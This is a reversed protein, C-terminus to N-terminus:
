NVVTDENSTGLVINSGPGPFITDLGANGRITDDDNGGRIVDDGRGGHIKDNGDNGELIDDGAEGYLQDAGDGGIIQDNGGGGYIIDDGLKGYIIDDGNHGLIFDNGQDGYIIDNGARGHITDDGIGAYIRDNGNRGDIIDNGALGCIVDEGSTGTLSDNGATGIITCNSFGVEIRVTTESCRDLGDCIQYSLLDEGITQGRYRIVKLGEPSTAISAIGLLPAATIAFSDIEIDGEIDIDNSLVNFYNDINLEASVKDDVATPISNHLSVTINISSVTQLGSSDTATVTITHNGPTLDSASLSLFHGSGIPGDLNSSWSFSNPSLNGDETDYGRASIVFGQREAVVTGASPSTIQVTPPTGFVSFIGTELFVSRLGDSASVAFRASNSTKLTNAEFRASKETSNYSLVDYKKGGDASYFVTYKLQEDDFDDAIWSLDIFESSTYVAGANSDALALFPTNDSRELTAIIKNSKSFRLKKYEPPDNIVFAFNVRDTINAPDCIGPICAEHTAHAEFPISRIVDDSNSLLELTYNGAVISRSDMVITHVPSLSVTVPEGDTSLEMSGAFIESNHLVNSDEVSNQAFSISNTASSLTNIIRQHHFEDMWWAQHRPPINGTGNPNYYCYSMISFVEEPDSVILDNYIESLTNSNAPFIARGLLLNADLGWVESADAGIPGLTAMVQGAAPINFFHRFGNDVLHGEGCAGQLNSAGEANAVPRGPHGEGLIHGVEHSGINRLQGFHSLTSESLGGNINYTLWTGVGLNINVQGSPGGDTRGGPIIGVYYAGDNRSTRIFNLGRLIFDFNPNQATNWNQSRFIEYNLNSFPMISAIRSMQEAITGDNLPPTNGNDDDIGLPVVVFKPSTVDMFSVEVSCKSPTSNCTNPIGSSFELTLELSETSNITTWSYPLLFNLSANIDNRNSVINTNISIDNGSNFQNVMGLETEVSGTSLKTGHLTATARRQGSAQLFVRVFTLRGRVLEVSNQWDQVGQTVEMAVVEVNLPRNSVRVVGGGSDSVPFRGKYLIGSVKNNLTRLNGGTGTTIELTGAEVTGEFVYHQSIDYHEIKSCGNSTSSIRNDWRGGTLTIGGGLCDKGVLTISAGTFNFGDYHVGIVVNSQSQQGSVLGFGNKAFDAAEDEGKFCTESGPILREEYVSDEEVRTVCHIYEGREETSGFDFVRYDLSSGQAVPYQSSDTNAEQQALAEKVITTLGAGTLCLSLAIATLGLTVRSSMGTLVSWGLGQCYTRLSKEKM